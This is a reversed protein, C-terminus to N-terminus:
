IRYLFSKMCICFIKEFILSSIHPCTNMALQKAEIHCKSLMNSVKITLYFCHVNCHLKKTSDPREFISNYETIWRYAIHNSAYFLAGVMLLTISIGDDILCNFTKQFVCFKPSDCGLTLNHNPFHCIVQCLLTCCDM